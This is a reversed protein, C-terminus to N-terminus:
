PLQGREATSSGHAPAPVGVTTTLPPLEFVPINRVADLYPPGETYGTGSRGGLMRMALRYHTQRWQSLANAFTRMAQQVLDHQSAPLLGAKVAAGYSQEITPRGALVQERVEPVSTYALSDIRERDPTRCLSEVTKYNRSQIASAGETWERFTRFSEVQMTALLSFLPASERLTSAAAQLKRAGASGDGCAIASCATALHVGLLAFTTEWCQLVRIFLYEDHVDAVPLMSLALVRRDEASLAAEVSACLRHATRVPQAAPEAFGARRLAPLAARVGLHLRKAVLSADPRQKPMLDTAGSAADLEFRLLDALLHAVLRDRQGGATEPVVASHLNPMPLLDLALYTQYDYRGDFKDLAITLFTTLQHVAENPGALDDDRTRVEDLADLLDKSVFHKGRWHYAALVESYPFRRVDLDGTLWEDLKRM